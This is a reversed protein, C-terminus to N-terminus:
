SHRYTKLQCTRGGDEMQFDTRHKGCTIIFVGM